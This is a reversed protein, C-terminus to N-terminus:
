RSLIVKFWVGHCDVRELTYFLYVLVTPNVSCCDCCLKDFFDLIKFSMVTRTGRTLIEETKPPVIGVSVPHVAIDVTKAVAPVKFLMSINEMRVDCCEYLNQKFLYHFNKSISM